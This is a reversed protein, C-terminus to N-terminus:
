APIEKIFLLAWISSKNLTLLKTQLHEAILQKGSKNLKRGEKNNWKVIIIEVIKSLTM